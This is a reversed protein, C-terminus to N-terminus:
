PASAPAASWTWRSAASTCRACCASTRWAARAAAPWCWASPRAASSARRAAGPRARAGPPHPPPRSLPRRDLWARTGRPSRQDAPHLLVLTEAAEIRGPRQMLWRTETPHLAPPQTADALLLVQDCCRSCRQTWPTPADDAVLLLYDHAAELRDLQLAIRRNAAADRVDGRAIGPQQLDRDVAAADVIHVRGPLHAALRTALAMPDVGATIPMLAITM